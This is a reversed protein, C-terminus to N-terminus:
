AQDGETYYWENNHDRKFVKHGEVYIDEGREDNLAELISAHNCGMEQGKWLTGKWTVNINLKVDDFNVDSDFAHVEYFENPDFNLGKAAAFHATMVQQLKRFLANKVVLVALANLEPDITMM